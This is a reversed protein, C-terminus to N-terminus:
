GKKTIQIPTDKVSLSNNSAPFVIDAPIKPLVRIIVIGSSENKPAHILIFLIGAVIIPFYGVPHGDNDLIQTEQSTKCQSIYYGPTLGYWLLVRTESRYQL